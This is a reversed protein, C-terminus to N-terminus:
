NNFYNVLGITIADSLDDIYEESRIFDLDESNSMYGLELLMSPRNNERLVYYNGFIVNNNPLELQELENNVANALDYDSEHFFYTTTGHWNPDLSSDFHLSIFADVEQQNSVDTREDLDFFSDDSRTMLVTAGLDELKAQLNQATMLTVEKEYTASDFSIAGPDSGGHGADIMIVAESISGPDTVGVHDIYDSERAAIRSEIYGRIGNEDEVFYYELGDAGRVAEIFEFRQNYAPTYIIESYFDPLTMFAQNEQRVIIINEAALRDEEPLDAELDPDEIVPVDERHLLEVNNTPIYGYQGSYEVQVWGSREFNVYLYEDSEITTLTDSELSQESYIPTEESIYAALNQDSTLQENELLWIPLWGIIDGQYRVRYWGNQETM